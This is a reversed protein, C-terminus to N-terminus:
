HHCYSNLKMQIKRCRSRPAIFWVKQVGNYKKAQVKKKYECIFSELNTLDSQNAVNSQGVNQKNVMADLWQELSKLVIENKNQLKIFNIIDEGSLTKLQIIIVLTRGFTQGLIQKQQLNLKPRVRVTITVEQSSKPLIQRTPRSNVHATQGETRQQPVLM